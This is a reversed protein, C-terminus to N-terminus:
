QNYISLLYAKFAQVDETKHLAYKYNGGRTVYIMISKEQNPRNSNLYIDKYKDKIFGHFCSAGNENPGSVGQYIRFSLPASIGPVQVNKFKWKYTNAKAKKDFKVLIKNLLIDSGEGSIMLNTGGYGGALVNKVKYPSVEEALVTTLPAIILALVFAIKRM